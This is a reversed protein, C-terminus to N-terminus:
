AQVKGLKGLAFIVHSKVATKIAEEQPLFRASHIGEISKVAPDKIGLHIYLGPVKKQFYAFDESFMTPHKKEIVNNEGLYDKYIKIMENTLKPDNYGSPYSKEIVVDVEARFSHAVSNLIDKVRKHLHNQLKDNFTRITGQFIAEDPIINRKTGAHLTGVTLVAPEFPPSERSILTQLETIMTASCVIPDITKHPMAGHGGKGKVTVDFVLIGSYDPGSKFAITGTDYESVHLGFIASANKPFVGENIMEFAGGPEVEESPQFLLTVTGQWYEKLEILIEAAGLLSATHLDHGCAHMIGNKQSKYPVDNLEEIPLADMDARLAIINGEGNCIHAVVGTKRICFQPQLGLKLLIDFVFAATEKENGSLEPNKHIKRRYKVVKPYLTEVANNLLEKIM